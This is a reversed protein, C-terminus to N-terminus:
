KSGVNCRHSRWFWHQTQQNNELAIFGELEEYKPIKRYDIDPAAVKCGFTRAKDLYLHEPCKLYFIGLDWARDFDQSNVFVLRSQDSIHGIPFNGVLSALQENRTM